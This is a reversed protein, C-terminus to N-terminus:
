NKSTRPRAQKASQRNVAQTFLAPAGAKMDMALKWLLGPNTSAIGAETKGNSLDQAPSASAAVLTNVQANWQTVTKGAHGRYLESFDEVLEYCFSASQTAPNWWANADECGTMVLRIPRPLAYRSSMHEALAELFGISRISNAYDESQREGQRYVVEITSRPQDASRLHPTLVAQWARRADDYDDHCSEQREESLRVWNALEKFKSRNSGVMLCVIQFARQRDLGHADSFDLAEGLARDRSHILFLGRAAQVLVNVSFESGGELLALTAFSDAADESRGLLPLRLQDVMTHGMEHLGVFVMNGVVFNVRDQQAPDSPATVRATHKSRESSASEHKTAGLTNSATALFLALPLLTKTFM